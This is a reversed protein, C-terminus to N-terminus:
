GIQRILEEAEGKQDDNGEHLVETLISRASEQDGMDIYARALDLKTSVEDEGSILTSEEEAEAATDLDEGSSNALWDIDAELGSDASAAAVDDAPSVEVDIDDAAPAVSDAQTEEMVDDLSFEEAAPTQETPVDEQFDGAQFDTEGAALAELSSEETTAQEAVENVAAVSSDAEGREDLGSLDGLDDLNFDLDLEEDQQGQGAETVSFDEFAPEQIGENSIEDNAFELTDSSAVEQEPAAPEDLSLEAAQDNQGSEEGGSEASGEDAFLPHSPLFQRGLSVVRDWVESGAEGVIAHFAEAQAIFEDRNESAAYVELLKLVYDHRHPELAIADKLLEEAKDFRRYALYVDAEALTDIEDEETQFVDMGADGSDQVVAGLEEAATFAGQEQPVAAATQPLVDDDPSEEAISTQFDEFELGDDGRRRRVMVWVLVLVLLVAGGAAGLLKPDALLQSIFDQPLEERSAPAAAKPPSVQAGREKQPAAAGAKASNDQEEQAAEEAAATVDQNQAMGSAAGSQLATLTDDRLALLRQMSSIQAELTSLRERLEANEQRSVESTELALALERRLANLDADTSAGAATKDSVGELATEGVQTEPVVLRLRAESNGQNEVMPGAAGGETQADGSGQPRKLAQGARQKRADQWQQNQLALLREAEQPNIDAITGPDSIRLIYGAKLYNVNSNYFAEPNNKLLAMMVQSVTVSNDPRLQKAISWLTDNRTVPGYSMGDAFRGGAIGGAATMSSPASARSVAASSAASTEAQPAEVPAPTEELFVPPDLLLTYERLLQGNPWELELLFDMFPEKIPQKTTILLYPTGKREELVFSLDTLFYALCIFFSLSLSVGWGSLAHIRLEKELKNM